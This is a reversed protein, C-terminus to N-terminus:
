SSYSRRGLGCVSCDPGLVQWCSLIWLENEVMTADLVSSSGVRQMISRPPLTLNGSIVITYRIDGAVVVVVVKGHDNQLCRSDARPGLVRPDQKM